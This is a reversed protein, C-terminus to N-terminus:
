LLKYFIPVSHHKQVTYLPIEGLKHMLVAQKMRERPLTEIETAHAWKETKVRSMM